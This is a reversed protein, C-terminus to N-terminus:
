SAAPPVALEEDLLPDDPAPDDPTDDLPVDDPLPDDLPPGEPLPDDPPTRMPEEDPTPGSSSALQEALMRVMIDWPVNASQQDHTAL